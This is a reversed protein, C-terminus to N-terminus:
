SHKHRVEPKGALMVNINYLGNVRLPVVAAYEQAATPKFSVPIETSQRPALMCSSSMVQVHIKHVAASLVQNLM